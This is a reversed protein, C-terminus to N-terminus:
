RQQARAEILGLAVNSLLVNADVPKTLYGTFGCALAKDREGHMANATVAFVPLAAFRPNQRIREVVAFGDLDPMQIDLLVLHPETEAIKELAECGGSTAFVQYGHSILIEALLERSALDDEAIVIRKM